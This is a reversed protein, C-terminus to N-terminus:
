NYLLNWLRSSLQQFKSLTKIEQRPYMGYLLFANIRANRRQDIAITDRNTKKMQNTDSLACGLFYPLHEQYRLDIASCLPAKDFNFTPIHEVHTQIWYSNNTPCKSMVDSRFKSPTELTTQYYLHLAETYGMCAIPNESFCEIMAFLCEFKEHNIYFETAITEAYEYMFYRLAADAADAYAKLTVLPDASMVFIQWVRVYWLVIMASHAEEENGYSLLMEAAQIMIKDSSLRKPNNIIHKVMDRAAHLSTINTDPNTKSFDM